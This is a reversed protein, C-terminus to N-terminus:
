LSTDIRDLAIPPDLAHHRVSMGPEIRYRRKKLSMEM